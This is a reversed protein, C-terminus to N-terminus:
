PANEWRDRYVKQIAAQNHRALAPEPQGWTPGVNARCRLLLKSVATWIRGFFDSNKTRTHRLRNGGILSTSAVGVM